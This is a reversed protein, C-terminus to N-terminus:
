KKATIKAMNLKKYYESIWIVVNNNNDQEFEDGTEPPYENFDQAVDPQCIM